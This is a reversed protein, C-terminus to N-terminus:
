LEREAQQLLFNPRIKRLILLDGVNDEGQFQHKTSWLREASTEAQYSTLLHGETVPLDSKLVNSALERLRVIQLPSVSFVEYRVAIATPNAMGIVTM